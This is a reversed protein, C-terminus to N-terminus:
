NAGEVTHGDATWCSWFRVQIFRHSSQAHHLLPDLFCLHRAGQFIVLDIPNHAKIDEVCTNLLKRRLSLPERHRILVTMCLWQDPLRRDYILLSFRESVSRNSRQNHYKHIYGSGYMEYCCLESVMTVTRTNNDLVLVVVGGQLTASM